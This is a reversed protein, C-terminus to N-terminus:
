FMINALRKKGKKVSENNAGLKKFVEMLLDKAANKNWNRDITIIDLLLNIAEEGRNKDFLHQALKYYNDLDKEDKAIADRLVKEQDDPQALAEM